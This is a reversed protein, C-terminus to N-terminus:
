KDRDTLRPTCKLLGGCEGRKIQHSHVATPYCHKQNSAKTSSKWTLFPQPQYYNIFGQIMIMLLEYVCSVIYGLANEFTKGCQIALIEWHALFIVGTTTHFASQSSGATSGAQRSCIAHPSLSSLLLFPLFRLSFEVVTKLWVATPLATLCPRDTAQSPFFNRVLHCFNCM